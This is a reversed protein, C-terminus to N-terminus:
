NFRVYVFLQRFPQCQAYRLPKGATHMQPQMKQLHLTLTPTSQTTKLIPTTISSGIV